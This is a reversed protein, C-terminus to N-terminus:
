LSTALKVNELSELKLFGEFAVCGEPVKTTAPNKCAYSLRDNFSHEFNPLLELQIGLGPCLGM